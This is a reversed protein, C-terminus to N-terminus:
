ASPRYVTLRRPALLVEVDEVDHELEGDHAIPQPGSHSHIVLKEAEVTGFVSSLQVLGLLSLLVARTRALRRDARVYQVDLVSDALDERWSPALGRPTYRGNGIFVVWVPLRDGNIEVDLPSGHRLTRWLGYATAPWKGVRHALRDRRRVMEPYGGISATNLFAKGEITALDVGGATGAGVARVTDKDKKLALAKAFHNLTGAPFVALPLGRRHAVQAVSAVTGDGGAVGLAIPDGAILAELDTEPDWRLVRADPLAATISDASGDSSGSADNVIVTLGRGTPLAPATAEATRAPGWSRVPWLVRGLIALGAGLALGAIVDSRHHVGVHVRSYGVAAAIPGVVIAAPPFELTAGAVFAAASAAHGSPFSSTRPTRSLRPALVTRGLGPRTRRVFPKVLVNATLSAAGMTLLGRVAARRPRQGLLSGVAAVGFWLVGKNAANTLLRLAVDVTRAAPPPLATVADPIRVANPAVAAADIASSLLGRLGSRRFASFRPGSSSGVSPM